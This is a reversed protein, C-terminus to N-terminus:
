IILHMPYLVSYSPPHSIRSYHSPVNVSFQELSVHHTQQLLMIFRVFQKCLLNHYQMYPVCKGKNCSQHTNHILGLHLSLLGITM